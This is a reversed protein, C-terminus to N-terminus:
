KLPARNCIFHLSPLSALNVEARDEIRVVGATALNEPLM